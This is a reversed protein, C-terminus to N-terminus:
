FVAIICCRCEDCFPPANKGIKADKVKYKKGDQAKCIPCVRDDGYTSVEYREVNVDRFEKLSKETAQRTFDARTGM